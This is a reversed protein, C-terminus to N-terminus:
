KSERPLAWQRITLDDGASFAHRGDPTFLVARVVGMHLTFRRLERGSKVDWLRVIKDDGASLLRHGSPSFALCRIPATHAAPLLKMERQSMADYLHITEDPAAVAVMKNDPAIAAATAKYDGLAGRQIVTDKTEFLKVGEVGLAAAGSRDPAAVLSRFVFDTSFTNKGGTEMNRRYLTGTQDLHVLTETGGWYAGPISEWSKGPRWANKRLDWVKLTEATCVALWANTPAIAFSVIPLQLQIYFTNKGSAIDWYRIIGDLAGSYLRKGDSSLALCTITKTHAKAIRRVEGLTDALQLPAPEEEAQKVREATTVQTLGALGPLALRYWYAARARLAAKQWGAEKEAGVWWADGRERREKTEEPAPLDGRALAPLPGSAAKALLPLGHEWDGKRLALYTGAQLNAEADAPDKLLREQAAQMQAFEKAIQKLEVEHKAVQSILSKLLTKRAGIEAVAILQTASALRDVAIAESVAVLAAETLVKAGDKNLLPTKALASLAAQKVDLPDVDYQRTLDDVAELVLPVRGTAIAQTRAEELLVYRAAADDQTAAALHLLKEALAARNAVTKKADAYETKLSGVVVRASEEIKAESPVPLRAAPAAPMKVEVPTKPVAPLIVEVPRVAAKEVTVVPPPKDPKSAPAPLPKELKSAPAPLPKEPKSEPSPLVVEAAAPAKLAAVAPLSKVDKPHTREADESRSLVLFFGLAALAAAVVGGGLLSPLLWRPRSSDRRLAPATPAKLAATRAVPLLPEALTGVAAAPALKRDYEQRKAPNLLIQRAQAIENLLQTCEVAHPGIQYARVHTTQRIAAEKIVELDTEDPAIGLLQYYTPPRQPKPIGLWKHYPDFM